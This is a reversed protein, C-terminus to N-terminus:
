PPRSTGATRPAGRGRLFARQRGAATAALGQAAAAAGAAALQAGRRRRRRLMNPKAVGAPAQTRAKSRPGQSGEHLQKARPRARGVMLPWRRELGQWRRGGRANGQALKRCGGAPRSTSYVKSEGTACRVGAACRARARAAQGAGLGVIVRRLRRPAARPRKQICMCTVFTGPQLDCAGVKQLSDATSTPLSRQAGLDEYVNCPLVLLHAALWCAPKM